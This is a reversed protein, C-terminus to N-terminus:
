QRDITGLESCGCARLMGNFDEIRLGPYSDMIRMYCTDDNNHYYDLRLCAKAFFRETIRLSLGLGVCIAKLVPIGMGNYKGRTIRYYYNSHLNTKEAFVTANWHNISMAFTLCECLTTEPNGLRALYDKEKKIEDKECIIKAASQFIDSLDEKSCRASIELQPAFQMLRYDIEDTEVTYRAQTNAPTQRTM